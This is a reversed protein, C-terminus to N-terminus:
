RVIGLWSEDIFFGDFDIVDIPLALDGAMSLALDGAMSLALDGADIPFLLFDAIISEPMVL